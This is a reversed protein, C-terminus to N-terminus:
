LAWSFSFCRSHNGVTPSPPTARMDSAGFWMGLWCVFCQVMSSVKAYGHLASAATLVMSELGKHVLPAGTTPDILPGTMPGGTGDIRVVFGLEPHNPVELSSVFPTGRGFHIRGSNTKTAAQGTVCVGAAILVIECGTEVAIDRVQVMLVCAVRCAACHMLKMVPQLKM